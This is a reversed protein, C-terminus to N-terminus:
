SDLIDIEQPDALALLRDAGDGTVCALACLMGQIVSTTIGDRRLHAGVFGGAFCDGAGTPDTAVVPSVRFRLVADGTLVSVSERSTAVFTTRNAGRINRGAEEMDDVGLLRCLEAQTSFVIGMREVANRVRDLDMELMSGHIQASRMSTLEATTCCCEYFRSPIDPGIHIWSDQYGRVAVKLVEPMSTIVPASETDIGFRLADLEEDEFYYLHFRTLDGQM